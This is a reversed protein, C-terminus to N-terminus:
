STMCPVAAMITSPPVKPATRTVLGSGTTSRPNPRRWATKKSCELEVSAAM